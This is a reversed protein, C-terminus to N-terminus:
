FESIILQQTMDFYSSKSDSQELYSTRETGALRSQFRKNVMASCNSNSLRLRWSLFSTFVPTLSIFSGAMVSQNFSFTPPSINSVLLDVSVESLLEMRELINSLLRAVRYKGGM